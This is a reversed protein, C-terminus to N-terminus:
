RFFREIKNKFQFFKQGFETNPDVHKEIKKEIFPVEFSLIVLALAIFVLGPIIPLVLGVVGLALLTLVVFYNFTARIKRRM